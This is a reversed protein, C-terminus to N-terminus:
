HQVFVFKATTVPLLRQASPSLCPAACISLILNEEGVCGGAAPKPGCKHIEAVRDDTLRTRVSPEAGGLFERRSNHDDFREQRTFPNTVALYMRRDSGFTFITMIVASCFGVSM